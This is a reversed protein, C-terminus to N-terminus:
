RPPRTRRRWTLSTVSGCHDEAPRQDPRAGDRQLHRGLTAADLAADKLLAALGERCRELAARQEPTAPLSAALGLVAWVSAASDIADARDPAVSVCAPSATVM